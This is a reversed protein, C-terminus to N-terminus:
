LGCEQLTYANKVDVKATIGMRRMEANAEDQAKRVVEEPLTVQALLGNM